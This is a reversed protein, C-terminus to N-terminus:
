STRTGFRFALPKVRGCSRRGTPIPLTIARRVDAGNEKPHRAAQSPTMPTQRQERRRTSREAEAEVPSFVFGQLDPKLFPRLVEQGKPGIM